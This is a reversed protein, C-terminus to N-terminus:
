AALAIVCSPVEKYSIDSSSYAWLNNSSDKKNEFTLDIGRQESLWNILSDYTENSIAKDLKEELKKLDLM